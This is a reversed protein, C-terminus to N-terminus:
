SAWVLKDTGFGVFLVNDSEVLLGVLYLLVVVTSLYLCSIFRIITLFIVLHSSM